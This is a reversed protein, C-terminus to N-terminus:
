KSCVQRRVTMLAELDQQNQARPRVVMVGVGQGKPILHDSREVEAEVLRKNTNPSVIM